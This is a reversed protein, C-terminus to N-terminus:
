GFHPQVDAELRVCRCGFLTFDDGDEKLADPALAELAEVDTLTLYVVSPPHGYAWMYDAKAKDIAEKSLPRDIVGAKDINRNPTGM